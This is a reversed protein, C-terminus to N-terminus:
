ITLRLDSRRPRGVQKLTGVDDFHFSGDCLPGANVLRKAIRQVAKRHM